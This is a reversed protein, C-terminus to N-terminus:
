NRNKFERSFQTLKCWILQYLSPSFNVVSSKGLFKHPVTVCVPCFSLVNLQAGKTTLSSFLFVSLESCAPDVLHNIRSQCLLLDAQLKFCTDVANFLTTRIRKINYQNKSAILVGALVVVMTTLLLPLMLLLLKNYLAFSEAVALM